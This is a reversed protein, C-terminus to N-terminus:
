PRHTPKEISASGYQNCASGVRTPGIAQLVSSNHPLMASSAVTNPEAAIARSILWGSFSSDNAALRMRSPSNSECRSSFVSVLSIRWTLMPKLRM